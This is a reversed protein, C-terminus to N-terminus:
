GDEGGQRPEPEDHDIFLMIAAVFLGIPEAIVATVEDDIAGFLGIHRHHEAGGWGAELGIM